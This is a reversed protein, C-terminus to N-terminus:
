SPLFKIDIISNARLNETRIAKRHEDGPLLRIERSEQGELIIRVPQKISNRLHIQLEDWHKLIKLQYVDLKRDSGSEPGDDDYITQWARFRMRFERVQGKEIELVKPQPSFRGGSKLDAAPELTEDDGGRKWELGDRKVSNALTPYVHMCPDYASIEDATIDLKLTYSASESDLYNGVYFRRSVDLEILENEADYGVVDIATILEVCDASISRVQERLYSAEHSRLRKASFLLEIKDDLNRSRDADRRQLLILLFGLLSFFVIDELLSASLSQLFPARFPQDEPTAAQAAFFVVVAVLTLIVLSVILVLYDRIAGRWNLVSRGRSMRVILLSSATLIVGAVCLLLTSIDTVNRALVGILLIAGAIVLSVFAWPTPEDASSRVLRHIVGGALVMIFLVWFARSWYDAVSLGTFAILGAAFIACIVAPVKQGSKAGDNSSEFEMPVCESAGGNGEENM